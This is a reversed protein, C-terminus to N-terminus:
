INKENHLELDPTASAIINHVYTSNPPIVHIIDRHKTKWSHTIQQSLWHAMEGTMGQLCKMFQEVMKVLGERLVGTGNL